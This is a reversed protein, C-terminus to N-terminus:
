LPLQILTKKYKTNFSKVLDLLDRVEFKIRDNQTEQVALTETLNEVDEKLSDISELKRKRCTQAALKNKGRRRIDKVLTLQEVTLKRQKILENFEDSNSDVIDGISLAIGHEELRLKDRLEQQIQKRTKHCDKNDNLFNKYLKLKHKYAQSQKIVTARKKKSNTNEHQNPKDSKDGLEIAMPKQVPIAIIPDLASETSENKQLNQSKNIEM